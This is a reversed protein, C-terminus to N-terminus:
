GAKSRRRESTGEGGMWAKMEPVIEKSWRKGARLPLFSRLLADLLASAQEVLFLREAVRDDEEETMLEPLRASKIDLHEADVTMEYSKDDHTLRLRAQHVLLGMDLARRVLSSYPAAVGKAVVETTEGAIGRLLVRDCFIVTVPKGEHEVLPQGEESRWLLWTLLERGLFTKGRLFQERAKGLEAEAADPKEEAARGDVGVEGRLFKAEQAARERRSM